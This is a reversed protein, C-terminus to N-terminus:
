QITGYYEAKILTNDIAYFICGLVHGVVAILYFIKFFTYAVHLGHYPRVIAKMIENFKLTEPFRLFICASIFLIYPIGNIAWSLILIAMILLHLCFRLSIGGKFYVEAGLDASMIAFLITLFWIPPDAVLTDFCINMFTLFFFATLDMFVIFCLLTELLSWEYLGLKSAAHSIMRLLLSCYQM